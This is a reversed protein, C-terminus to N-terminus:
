FDILSSLKQFSLTELPRKVTCATCLAYLSFYYIFMNFRKLTSSSGHSPIDNTMTIVTILSLKPYPAYSFHLFFSNCIYAVYNIM